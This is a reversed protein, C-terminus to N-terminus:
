VLEDPKPKELWTSPNIYVKRDYDYVYAILGQKLLKQLIVSRLESSMFCVHKIKFAAEVTDPDKVHPRLCPLNAAIIEDAEKSLKEDKVKKLENKTKVADSALERLSKLFDDKLFYQETCLQENSNSHEHAM